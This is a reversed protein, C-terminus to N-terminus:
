TNSFPSNRGKEKRLSFKLVKLIDKKLCQADALRPPTKAHAIFSEPVDVAMERLLILYIVLHNNGM